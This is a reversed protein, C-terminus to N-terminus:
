HLFLRSFYSTEKVIILGSGTLEPQRPIQKKKSTIFDPKLSILLEVENKGTFPKIDKITGTLFGYEVAPYADLSINVVQNMKISGANYISAFGRVLVSTTDPLRGSKSNSDTVAIIVKFPLTTRYPIFFSSVVVIFIVLVVVLNSYMYISRPPKGLIDSIEEPAISIQKAIDKIDYQNYEM